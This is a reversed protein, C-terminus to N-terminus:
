EARLVHHVAPVCSSSQRCVEHKIPSSLFVFYLFHSFFYPYLHYSIFGISFFLVTSFSDSLASFHIISAFHHCFYLLPLPVVLFWCEHSENTELITIQICVFLNLQEKIENIHKYFRNLTWTNDPTDNGPRWRPASYSAAVNAHRQAARRSPQTM